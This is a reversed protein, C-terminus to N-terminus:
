YDQLCRGATIMDSASRMAKIPSPAIPEPASGAEILRGQCGIHSHAWAAIIGMGADLVPHLSEQTMACAQRQVQLLIQLSCPLAVQQHM